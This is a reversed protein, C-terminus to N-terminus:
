RALDNWAVLTGHTRAAGAEAAPRAGYAILGSRGPTRLEASQVYVATSAAIWRGTDYDVVWAASNRVPPRARVHRVLCGIDDFFDVGDGATVIQAAYSKDVIVARCGSCADEGVALLLPQPVSSGCGLALVVVITRVARMSVGM